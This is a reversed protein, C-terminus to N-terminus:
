KWISHIWGQFRFIQLQYIGYSGNDTKVRFQVSGYGTIQSEGEALNVYSPETETFTVFAEKQYCLHCNSGSEIVFVIDLASEKVYDDILYAEAFMSYTVKEDADSVNQNPVAYPVNLNWRGRPNRYRGRGRFGRGQNLNAQAQVNELNKPNHWCNNSLHGQKGCTYCTCTENKSIPVM